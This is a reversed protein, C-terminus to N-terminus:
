SVTGEECLLVLMRNRELPNLVSRINFARTGFVVRDASTVGSLFRCVIKHTVLHNLQHAHFVEKSSAPEISACVAGNTVTAWTETYGGQGDSVRTKRQIAVRHRLAGAQM